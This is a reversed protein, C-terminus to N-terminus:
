TTCGPCAQSSPKAEETVTGSRGRVAEAIAKADAENWLRDARKDADGPDKKFGPRVV